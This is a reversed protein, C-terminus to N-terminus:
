KILADLVRKIVEYSLAGNIVIKTKDNSVSINGQFQAIIPILTKEQEANIKSKLVLISYPTGTAGIAIGDEYDSQVKEAYKTGAVCETFKKTDFKLLEATETLKSPDLGNNSPTIEMIKDL